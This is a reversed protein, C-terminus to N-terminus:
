FDSHIDRNIRAPPVVAWKEPRHLAGYTSGLAGGVACGGLVAFLIKNDNRNDWNHYNQIAAAAVWGMGLLAGKWTNDSVNKALPKVGLSIEFKSIARIPIRTRPLLVVTDPQIWALTGEFPKSMITPATIRVRSDPTLPPLDQAFANSFMCFLFFFIITM